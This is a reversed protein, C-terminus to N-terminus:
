QAGGPAPVNPVPPTGAQSYQAMLRTLGNDENMPVQSLNKATESGQHAGAAMQAQQAQQAKQQRIQKVQDESLLIDPNVGLMEAYDRIMVDVDLIDKAEPTAASVSAIFGALREIGSTELLKQAQAMINIYQIKLAQGM